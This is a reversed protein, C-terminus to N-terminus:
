LSCSDSIEEREMSGWMGLGFMKGIENQVGEQQGVLEHGGWMSELYVVKGNTSEFEERVGFEPIESKKVLLTRAEQRKSLSAKYAEFESSTLSQGPANPLSISPPLYPTLLHDLLTKSHHHPIEFDNACHAIFVPVNLEQIISLTDYKELILRKILKRGLAFSQLPQLVPFGFLPYEEILVAFSTFPALLVVGRPKKGLQALNRGLKSSVGTGLSHGVILIDEEKAGHELLWNWATLADIELGKEDPVGTSDGFGRYDIVLVNTQLRSTFSTYLQRRSATARSGATGHFFLITKQSTLADHILNPPTSYSSSVPHQQYYPDSLVFWGGLTQNDPTQLQVNLTKGPALGYKEPLDFNAFYPLRFMYQYSVHRQVWPISLLVICIAYLIGLYFFFRHGRALFSEKPRSM